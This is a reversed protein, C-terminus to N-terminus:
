LLNNDIIFEQAKEFDIPTGIDIFPNHSVFTYINKLGINNSILSNISFSENISLSHLFNTNIIIYGNNVFGEGKELKENFCVLKNDEDFMVSGYRSVDKVYSVAISIDANNGIHQKLMLHIDINSITDANLILTYATSINKACYAVAGGTGMEFPEIVLELNLKSNNRKTNKSNSIMLERQEYSVYVEKGKKLM